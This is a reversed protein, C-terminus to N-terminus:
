KLSKDIADLIANSVKKIKKKHGADSEVAVRAAHEAAYRRQDEPSPLMPAAMPDIHNKKKM